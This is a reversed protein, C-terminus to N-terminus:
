HKKIIGNDSKWDTVMEREGLHHERGESGGELEGLLRVGGSSSALRHRPERLVELREKEIEVRVSCLDSYKKM